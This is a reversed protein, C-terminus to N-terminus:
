PKQSKLQTDLWQRSLRNTEVFIESFAIDVKPDFDALIIYLISCFSLQLSPSALLHKVLTILQYLIKCYYISGKFIKSEIKFVGSAM